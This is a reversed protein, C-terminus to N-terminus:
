HLYFSICYFNQHPPQIHIHHRVFMDNNKAKHNKCTKSKELLRHNKDTASKFKKIKTKGEIGHLGSVPSTTNWGLGTEWQRQNDSISPSM